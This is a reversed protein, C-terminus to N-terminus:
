AIGAVLANKWFIPNMLLAQLDIFRFLSLVEVKGSSRLILLPRKFWRKLSLM